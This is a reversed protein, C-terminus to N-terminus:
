LISRRPPAEHITPAEAVVAETTKSIHVQPQLPPEEKESKSPTEIVEEPPAGETGIPSVFSNGAVDTPSVQATALSGKNTPTIPGGKGAQSKNPNDLAAHKIPQLAQLVNEIRLM